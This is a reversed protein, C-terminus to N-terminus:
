GFVGSDILRQADRRLSCTQMYAGDKYIRWSVRSRPAAQFRIIEFM